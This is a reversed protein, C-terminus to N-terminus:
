GDLISLSPIGNHAAKMGSIGLAEQPKKPTNLWIDVGSVM